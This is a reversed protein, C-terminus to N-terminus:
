LPWNESKCKKPTFPAFLGMAFLAFRGGFTAKGTEVLAKFNNVIFTGGSKMYKESKTGAAVGETILTFKTGEEVEELVYTIKCAPDDLTTFRFTHSYRHPPDWELVEGVVSTYKDNKTRMRIPAGLGLETTVCKANFFFPLVMETRTLEAWVTDIPAAITVEYFAKEAIAVDEGEAAASNPDLAEENKDNSM